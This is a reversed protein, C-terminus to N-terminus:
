ADTLVVRPQWSEGQREAIAVLHGREDVLAVDSQGGDRAAVARGARVAALEGAVLAVRSMGVLAAEPPRVAIGARVEDLTVAEAISFPGIATRRLAALHAASGSRRGLDRALARIYTGTGCRIRFRWRDSDHNLVEWSDVHVPVPALDVAEGRRALAYARRGQLRKASYSPPVQFIDGTLQQLADGLRTADPAPAVLGPTGTADDTDTELGFVIEAEYTKPEAPVFRALRTAAGILVILLGTAFPDLTGTHGARSSGLARRVMTVVDQSTVGAPKDLLLFGSSIAAVM